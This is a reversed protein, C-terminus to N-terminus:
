QNYVGYYGDYKDHDQLLIESILTLKWEPIIHLCEEWLNTIQQNQSFDAMPVVYLLATKQTLVWFFASYPHPKM